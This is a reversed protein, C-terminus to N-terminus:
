SQLRIMLTFKLEIFLFFNMIQTQDIGKKHLFMLREYKVYLYGLVQTNDHLQGLNLQALELDSNFFSDNGTLGM